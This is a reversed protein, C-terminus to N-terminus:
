FHLHQQFELIFDLYNDGDVSFIDLRIFDASVITDSIILIYKAQNILKLAYAQKNAADAQGFKVVLWRGDPKLPSQLLQANWRVTMVFDIAVRIINFEDNRVVSISLILIDLCRAWQNHHSGGSWTTAFQSHTQRLEIVLVLASDVSTIGFKLSEWDPINRQFM